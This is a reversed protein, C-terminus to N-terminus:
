EQFVLEGLVVVVKVVVFSEIGSLVGRGVM